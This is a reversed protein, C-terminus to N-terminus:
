PAPKTFRKCWSGWNCKSDLVAPAAPGGINVLVVGTLSYLGFGAKVGVPNAQVVIGQLGLLGFLGAAM